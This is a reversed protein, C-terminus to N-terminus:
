KRASKANSLNTLKFGPALHIQPVKSKLQSELEENNLYELLENKKPFELNSLEGRCNKLFFYIKQIDYQSISEKGDIEWKFQVTDMDCWEKLLNLLRERVELDIEKQIEVQQELADRTKPNLYLRNFIKAVIILRRRVQVTIKPIDNSNVGMQEPAALITCIAKQIFLSYMLNEELDPSVRSLIENFIYRVQYPILYSYQELNDLFERVINQLNKYFDELNGNVRGMGIPLEIEENREIVRVITPLVAQQIYEQCGLIFFSILFDQWISLPLKKSSLIVEPLIINVVLAFREFCNSQIIIRNMCCCEIRSPLISSDKLQMICSFIKMEEDHVFIDLLLQRWGKVVIAEGM